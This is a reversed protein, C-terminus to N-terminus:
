ELADPDGGLRRFLDGAALELFTPRGRPCTLPQRTALLRQALARIENESPQDGLRLARTAALRAIDDHRLASNGRDRALDALDRLFAEARAPDLWAPVAELRFFNRGFEELAFGQQNLWSRQSELAAAALPSSNSPPPSSSASAPLKSAAAFRAIKCIRRVLRTRPRRSANFLPHPRRSIRLPLHPQALPRPLALLFPPSRSGFKSNPIKSDPIAPSPAPQAVSSNTIQSKHNTINPGPAPPAPAPSNSIQSKFNAITPNSPTQAPAAATSPPTAFSPPTLQANLTSPQVNLTPPKNPEASRAGQEGAAHGALARLQNLVAGLVFQRVAGEDRFRVERKAPHVNVDVAAPDIELFLIAPPYRGKPVYTHYAELVAYNLTRSDVPRRNVLTILGDRTPRGQGPRGLLGSLKLDGASNKIEPFEVM